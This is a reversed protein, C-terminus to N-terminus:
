SWSTTHASHGPNSAVAGPLPCHTDLDHCDREHRLQLVEVADSPELPLVSVVNVVNVARLDALGNLRAFRVLRFGLFLSHECCHFGHGCM